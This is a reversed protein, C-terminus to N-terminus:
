PRGYQKINHNLVHKRLTDLNLVPKGQTKEASRCLNNVQYILTGLVLVDM